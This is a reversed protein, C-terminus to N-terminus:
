GRKRRKSKAPGPERKPTSTGAREDALIAEIKDVAAELKGAANMIVHEFEASRAMESRATVLRREIRAEDDSNRARLRQELEDLSAPAIFIRVAEPMVQKISAAGQVDTRVYVDLGRSLMDLVQQKPVGYSDGYVTAHELLGGNRQLGDFEMQTVFYYDQGHRENFRAPRTTCTVVRHFAHRRRALEDLVADKGAGSPGSLVVFLPRPKGNM